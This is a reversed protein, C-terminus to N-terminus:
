ANRKRRQEAHEHRALASREGQRLEDRTRWVRAAKEAELAVLDVETAVRKWGEHLYRPVGVKAGGVVAFDRWSYPFRDRATAGIGPNRSQNIFPPQYRYVEGTDADLRDHADAYDRALKKSCYGAVYSISEPTVSGLDVYGFSRGRIGWAAALVDRDHDPCASFIIAHYHPRGFSDGYEGSAFFRVRRPYIRDRLRKFYDALHDKRLSPPCNRENYTLTVFAASPHQYLELGCRLAWAKAKATRCGICNGCPLRLPVWGDLQSPERLTVGAECKWAKLPHFCAM